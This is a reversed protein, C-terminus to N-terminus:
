KIKINIIKFAKLLLKVDILFKKSKNDLFRPLYSSDINTGM